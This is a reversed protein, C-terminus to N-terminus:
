KKSRTRSAMAAQKEQSSFSTKGAFFDALGKENGLLKFCDGSPFFRAAVQANWEAGDPLLVFNEPAQALLLAADAPVLELVQGTKLAYGRPGASIRGGSIVGYLQPKM